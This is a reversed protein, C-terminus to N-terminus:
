HENQGFPGHVVAVGTVGLASDGGGNAGAVRGQQVLAVSQGGAGTKTVGFRHLNEGSFTGLPDSVQDLPADREIGALTLNGQAPLAGVAKGADKVRATVGGALMDLQGKGCQHGLGVNLDAIEGQCGAEERHVTSDGSHFGQVAIGTLGAGKGGPEHDDGGAARPLEVTEGGVGQHSGAVPNGQGKGSSGLDHVQLKVLEVGGSQTQFARGGEQQGLGHAAFACNQPIRRSLGEHVGIMGQGVQSGPIHDRPSDGGLHFAILAIRDGQVYGM